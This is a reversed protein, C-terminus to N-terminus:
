AIKTAVPEESISNWWTTRDYQHDKTLANPDLLRKNHFGLAESFERAILEYQEDFFCFYIETTKAM